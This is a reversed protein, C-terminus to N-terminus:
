LANSQEDESEQTHREEEERDFPQFKQLLDLMDARIQMSTKYAQILEARCESLQDDREDLSSTLRENDARVSEMETLVEVLRAELYNVREQGQSRYVAHLRKADASVVSGIKPKIQVLNRQADHDKPTNSSM